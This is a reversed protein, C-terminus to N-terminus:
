IISFLVYLILLVYLVLYKLISNFTIEGGSKDFKM